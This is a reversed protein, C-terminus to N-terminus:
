EMQYLRDQAVAFGQGFFIGLETDAVIHPVGFSDRCIAVTSGDPAPLTLDQALVNIVIIFTLKFILVQKMLKVIFLNRM